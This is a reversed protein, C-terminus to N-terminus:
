PHRYSLSQSHPGEAGGFGVACISFKYTRGREVKVFKQRKKQLPKENLKEAVIGKDYEVHVNYGLVRENSDSWTLVIGDGEEAVSLSYPAALSSAASAPPKAGPFRFSLALRHMAGLEASSVLAYDLAYTPPLQLGAGVSLQASEGPLGTALGARLAARMPLGPEAGPTAPAEGDGLDVTFESGLMARAVSAAPFFQAAVENRWRQSFLSQSVGAQVQLPLGGPALGGSGSGTASAAGINQVAAGFRLDRWIRGQVGLDGGLANSKSGGYDEELEKVAAGIRWGEDLRLGFAAAALINSNSFAAGENGFSDRLTDSDYLYAGQVALVLDQSLAGALTLHSIQTGLLGIMQGAQVGLGQIQALGAPNSSISSEDDAGAVFAGGLSTPRVAFPETMLLASATGFAPWARPALALLLLSIKLSKL